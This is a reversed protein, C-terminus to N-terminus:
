FLIMIKDILCCDLFFDAYFLGEIYGIRDLLWEITKQNESNTHPTSIVFINNTKNKAQLKPDFVVFVEKLM